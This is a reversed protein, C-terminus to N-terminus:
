GKLKQETEKIKGVMFPQLIKRVQSSGITTLWGYMKETVRITFRETLKEKIDSMITKFTQRCYIFKDSM